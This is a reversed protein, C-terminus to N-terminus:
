GGDAPYLTGVRGIDRGDVFICYCAAEDAQEPVRELLIRMVPECGRIRDRSLYVRIDVEGPLEGADTSFRITRFDNEAYMRAVRRAFEDRDGISPANAVVTLRCVSGDSDSSVADPVGQESPNGASSASELGPPSGGASAGESGPPSGHCILFFILASVTLLSVLLIASNKMKNRKLM